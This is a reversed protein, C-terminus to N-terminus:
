DGVGVATLFVLVITTAGLLGQLIAISFPLAAEALRPGDASRTGGRAAWGFFMTFGLLAVVALLAFAIWTLADEDVALYVIWIVLGTAALLFHGGILPPRIRQGAAAGERLGGNALWRVALVFGGLATVVWTVLAAWEM